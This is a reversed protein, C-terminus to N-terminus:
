NFLITPLSLIISRTNLSKNKPSKNKNMKNAMNRFNNSIFILYVKLLFNLDITKISM